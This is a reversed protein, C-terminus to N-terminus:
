GIHKIFSFTETVSVICVCNYCNYYYNILGTHAFILLLRPLLLIVYKLKFRLWIVLMKLRNRLGKQQLHVTYHVLPYKSDLTFESVKKDYVKYPVYLILYQQRFIGINMHKM